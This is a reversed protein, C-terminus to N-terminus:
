FNFFYQTFCKVHLKIDLYNYIRGNKDAKKVSLVTTGVAGYNMLTNDGLRDNTEVELSEVEFSQTRQM